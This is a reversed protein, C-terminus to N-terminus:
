QPRHIQIMGEHAEDSLEARGVGTASGTVRLVDGARADIKRLDAPALRAIAHGIDEIRAEAVRLTLTAALLSPAIDTMAYGAVREQEAFGDFLAVTGPKELRTRVM